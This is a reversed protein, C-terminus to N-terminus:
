ILSVGNLDTTLVMSMDDFFPRIAKFTSSVKKQFDDALVDKDSFSHEFWFQKLRLLDIAPHNKEFGRPATKVREGRIEGFTSQIKKLRLLKRWVDHNLDIDQRIRLLDQPNPYTFGCGVHSAGPKIWFYYGGRLHPKMRKLHGAFRPNYPTKDASFRVDNYIRYLSEKGNKTQIEDHKNMEAILEDLWDTVNALAINYQEKNKQFWERNNNRTLTKLFDFTYKEIKM